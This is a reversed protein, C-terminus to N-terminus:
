ANRTALNIGTLVTNANAMTLSTPSHWFRMEYIIGNAFPRLYPSVTNQWYAGLYTNHVITGSTNSTDATANINFVLNTTQAALCIMGDSTRCASIVAVNANSLLWLAGSGFSYSVSIPTTTGVRSVSMFAHKGWSNWNGMPINASDGYMVMGPETPSYVDGISFPCPTPNGWGASPLKIVMTLVWDTGLFATDVVNNASLYLHTGQGWNTLGAKQMGGFVGFVNVVPTIGLSGVANWTPGSYARIAGSQVGIHSISNVADYPILTVAPPIPLQLTSIGAVRPPTM